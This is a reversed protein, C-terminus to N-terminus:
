NAKRFGTILYQKKSRTLQVQLSGNIWIEYRRSCVVNDFSDALLSQGKAMSQFISFSNDNIDVLVIEGSGSVAKFDYKAPRIGDVGIRYIGPGLTEEKLNRIPVPPTLLVTVNGNIELVDGRMLTVNRFSGPMAGSTVGIANGLNWCKAKKNKIMFNGGGSEAVLNCRGPQIDKGVRYVGASLIRRNEYDGERMMVLMIVCFAIIMVVIGMGEDSM